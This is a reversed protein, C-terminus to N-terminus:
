RCRFREALSRGHHRFLSKTGGVPEVERYQPHRRIFEAEERCNRILGSDEVRNNVILLAGYALNRRDGYTQNIWSALEM